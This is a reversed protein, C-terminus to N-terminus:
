LYPQVIGAVWVAPADSSGRWIDGDGFMKTVAEELWLRGGFWERGECGRWRSMLIVLMVAGRFDSMGAAVSGIIGRGVIREWVETGGVSM